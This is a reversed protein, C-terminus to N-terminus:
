HLTSGIIALVGNSTHPRKVIEDESYFWELDLPLSSYDLVGYIFLSCLAKNNRSQPLGM